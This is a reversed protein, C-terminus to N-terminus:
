VALSSHSSAIITFSVELSAAAGGDNEEVVIAAYSARANTVLHVELIELVELFVLLVLVITGMILFFFVLGDATGMGM